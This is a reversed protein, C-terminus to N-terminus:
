WSLQRYIRFWNTQGGEVGVADLAYFPRLFEQRTYSNAQPYVLTCNTVTLSDPIYQRFTRAEGKQLLKILERSTKPLANGTPRMQRFTMEFEALRGESMYGARLM